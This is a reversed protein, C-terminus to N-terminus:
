KSDYADLVKKYVGKIKIDKAKYIEKQLWIRFEPSDGHFEVTEVNKGIVEVGM